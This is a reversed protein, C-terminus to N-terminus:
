EDSAKEARKSATSTSPKAAPKPKPLPNGQGKAKIKVTLKGSNDALKNWDDQCRVYLKGARPAAFSGYVGLDVPESLYEALDLSGGLDFDKVVAAVLRGEGGEAGDATLSEAEKGKTTKWTGTAAFELEDGEDVIIGTPQWGRNADVKVTIPSAGKLSIFKKKWDWSCLDARYGQDFHKLFFLYEFCIETAMAGYVDEFTVSQKQLLALGLPRFREAYNKNNALLHCLAWRWAYNQWSDGTFEQGNVIENLSKPPSERLYELVGPHVNVSFDGAKWYQGMEAMGESYWVPGTTGFAQGCYAHVAEHQPTGHDAVAYVMSKAVFDNGRSISQTITVGAGSAIKARGDESPISGLPWKDLDRVVYCEIIGRSPRGWYASILKLMTELRELLDKAEAAPLDTHLLFNPSTFDAPKSDATDAEEGKEGRTGQAVANGVVLLVACGCVIAALWRRM